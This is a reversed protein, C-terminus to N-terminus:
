IVFCKNVEIETSMLSLSYWEKPLYIRMDASISTLIQIIDSVSTVSVKYINCFINYEKVKRVISDSSLTIMKIFDMLYAEYDEVTICSLNIIENNIAEM